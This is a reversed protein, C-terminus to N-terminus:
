LKSGESDVVVDAVQPQADAVMAAAVAVAEEQAGAPTSAATPATTIRITTGTAIPTITTGTPTRIITTATQIRATPLQQRARPRLPLVHLREMTAPFVRVITIATSQRAPVHQIGTVARIEAISQVRRCVIAGM